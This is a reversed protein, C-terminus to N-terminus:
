PESLRRTNTISEPPGSPTRTCTRSLRLSMKVFLREPGFSARNASASMGRLDCVCSTSAFALLAGAVRYFRLPSVTNSHETGTTSLSSTSDHSLLSDHSLFSVSYVMFTYSYYAGCHFHPSSCGPRPLLNIRGTFSNHSM